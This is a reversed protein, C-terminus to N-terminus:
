KNVNGGNQPINDKSLTKGLPKSGAGAIIKASPLVSKEIKGVNYVM